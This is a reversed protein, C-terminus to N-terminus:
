KYFSSKMGQGAATDQYAVCGLKFKVTIGIVQAKINEYYFYSLSPIKQFVAFFSYCSACCSCLVRSYQFVFIQFVNTNFFYCVDSIAAYFHKAVSIAFILTQSVCLLQKQFILLEFKWFYLM